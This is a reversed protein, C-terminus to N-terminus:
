NELAMIKLLISDEEPDQAQTGENIEGRKLNLDENKKDIHSMVQNIECEKANLKLEMAKLKLELAEKERVMENKEKEFAKYENNPIEIENLGQGSKVKVDDEEREKGLNMTNNPLQAPYIRGVRSVSSPDPQRRESSPRGNGVSGVQTGGGLSEAKSPPRLSPRFKAIMIVMMLVLVVMDVLLFKVSLSQVTDVHHILAVFILYFLHVILQHLFEPAMFIFYICLFSCFDPAKYETM